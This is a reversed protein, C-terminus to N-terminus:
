SKIPLNWFYSMNFVFVGNYRCTRLTIWRKRNRTKNYENISNIFIVLSRFNLFNFPRVLNLSVRIFRSWCFERKHIVFVWRMCTILYPSSLTGIRFKRNICFLLLCEVCLVCHCSVNYELRFFSNQIASLRRKATATESAIKRFLQQRRSFLPFLVWLLRSKYAFTLLLFPILWLDVPGHAWMVRHVWAATTLPVCEIRVAKTWPLLELDLSTFVNLAVWRRLRICRLLAACEVCLLLFQIFLQEAAIWTSSALKLMCEFAPACVCVNVSCQVCVAAHAKTNTKLLIDEMRSLPTKTCGHASQALM